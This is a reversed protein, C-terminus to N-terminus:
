KEPGETLIRWCIKPCKKKKKMHLSRTDQIDDATSYADKVIDEYLLDTLQQYFNHQM